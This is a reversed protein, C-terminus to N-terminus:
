KGDAIDILRKFIYFNHARGKGTICELIHNNVFTKLLRQATPKPINANEYFSKSNFYTKSFIFDLATIGYQSKSIKPIREKLENYFDIINKALQLNEQAQQIVGKLFFECWFLWNNNKSIDLLLDYYTDRNKEFYSSIYFAPSSLLEKEYLYLPIFMRGLRGNGDLFPHIAEFEAHLIAVKLLDDYQTNNNHTYQEFNSIATDIHQADIPIFRAKTIDTKDPGIWVPTKRYEGPNKNNGRVSDMLIKHSQKLVRGSLPLQQTKISNTASDMAIRYNLIERIEDRKETTINKTGGEQGDFELVETLTSQTGEIQSSLVAEQVFLPSLLSESGQMTSLFGDYRGLETRAKAILNYLEQNLEITPPFKEYHYKIAM